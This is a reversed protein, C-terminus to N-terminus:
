QVPRLRRLGGVLAPSVLRSWLDAVGRGLLLGGAVDAPYHVGLYVRSYGVAAGLAAGGWRAPAPLQLDRGAVTVFSLLVAPHSSPWSSGRPRGIMLRFAQLSEYPRPRLVARKALQGVAWMTGAAGLADVAERRRGKWALVVSAGASAWISGLETVTWFLADVARGRDRNVSRYLGEDLARGRGLATAAGLVAAGTVFPFWDGRRGM